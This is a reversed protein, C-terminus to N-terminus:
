CPLVRVQAPRDRRRHLPARLQEADVQGGDALHGGVDLGVDTGVADLHPAEHQKLPLEPGLRKASPPAAIYVASPGRGGIRLARRGSSWRSVTPSKVKTSSGM